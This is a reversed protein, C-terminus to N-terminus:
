LKLDIISCEAALAVYSVSGWVEDTGDNAVVGVAGAINPTGPQGCPEGVILTEGTDTILPAYGRRQLWFYYSATIDILPVGVSVGATTTARVVVDMSRHKLMTLESAAVLGTRLATELLLTLQTDDLIDVKSALIKYIDGLGTSKNVVLTGDTLADEALTIGTTILVTIERDGEAQTLATQIEEVIREQRVAMQCMLAKSLAITSNHAYEFLRGDNYKLETGIRYKQDSSEEYISVLPQEVDGFLPGKGFVPETLILPLESM